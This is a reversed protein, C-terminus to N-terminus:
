PWDVSVSCKMWFLRFLSFSWPLRGLLVDHGKSEVKVECSEGSMLIKGERQLFGKQLGSISTNKLATWHGIVSKLLEDKEKSFGKPLPQEIDVFDYIDLGALIKEFVLEGEHEPNHDHCLHYLALAAKDPQTLGEKEMLKLKQFFDKLFPNLIVIGASQTFIANEFYHAPDDETNKEWEDFEKVDNRKKNGDDTGAVIDRTREGPISSVEKMPRDTGIEDASRGGTLKESLGSDSTHDTKQIIVSIKRSYAPGLFRALRKFENERPASFVRKLEEFDKREQLSTLQEGGALEDLRAFLDKVIEDRSTENSVYWPFTGNRAFFIIERIGSRYIFTEQDQATLSDTASHIIENISKDFEKEFAALFESELDGPKLIGLDLEIKAIIVQENGLVKQSIKEVLEPLSEQCVELLEQNTARVDHGSGMKIILEQRGIIVPDSDAM